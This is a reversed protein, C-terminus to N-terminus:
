DLRANGEDYDEIMDSIDREQKRISSHVSKQEM